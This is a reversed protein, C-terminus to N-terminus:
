NDWIEDFIIEIDCGEEDFLFPFAMNNEHIQLEYKGDVLKYIEIKEKDGDVILYYKIGQEEYIGYKTHRDRLATSPSLVEVVLVPPFDIFPKTPKGCIISVDPQLITSENVKFDIPM